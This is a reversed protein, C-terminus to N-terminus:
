TRSLQEAVWWAPVRTARGIRVTPCQETRVWRRVVQVDVGLRSAAQGITLAPAESM